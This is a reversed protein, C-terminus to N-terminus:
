MTPVSILPKTLSSSAGLEELFHKSQQLAALASLKPTLHKRKGKWWRTFIRVDEKREYDFSERMIRSWIEDAEQAIAKYRSPRSAKLEASPAESRQQPCPDYFRSLDLSIVMLSLVQEFKEGHHNDIRHLETENIHFSSNTM